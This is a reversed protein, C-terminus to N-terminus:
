RRLDQKLIPYETCARSESSKEQMMTPLLISTHSGVDDAQAVASGLQLGHEAVHARV